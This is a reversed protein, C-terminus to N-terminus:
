TGRHVISTIVDQWSPWASDSDCVCRAQQCFATCDAKVAGCSKQCTYTDSCWMRGIMEALSCGLM